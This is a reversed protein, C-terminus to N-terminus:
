FTQVPILVVEDRPIEMEMVAGNTPNKWVVRDVFEYRYRRATLGNRLFVIGEDIRNKLNNEALVPKFSDQELNPESEATESAQVPPEGVDMVVPESGPEPTQIRGNFLLLGFVILITAAVGMGGWAGFALVKNMRRHSQVSALASDVKQYVEKSPRVPQIKRLREEFAKDHELSM